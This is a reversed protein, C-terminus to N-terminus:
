CYSSRKQLERKIKEDTVVELKMGILDRLDLGKRTSAKDEHYGWEVACYELYDRLISCSVKSIKFYNTRSGLEISLVESELKDGVFGIEIGSRENNNPTIVNKASVITLNEM